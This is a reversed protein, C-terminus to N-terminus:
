EVFTTMEPTDPEIDPLLSGDEGEGQDDAHEAGGDMEVDDAAEDEIDDIQVEPEAM